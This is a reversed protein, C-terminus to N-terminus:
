CVVHEALVVVVQSSLITASHQFLVSVIAEALTAAIMLLTNERAVLWNASRRARTKGVPKEWLHVPWSRLERRCLVEFLTPQYCSKNSV